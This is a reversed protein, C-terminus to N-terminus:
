GNHKSDMRMVYPLTSAERPTQKNKRWHSSTVIPTVDLAFGRNFVRFWSMHAWVNKGNKM